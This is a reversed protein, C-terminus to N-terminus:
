LNTQFFHKFFYVLLNAFHVSILSWENLVHAFNDLFSIKRERQYVNTRTRIWSGPFALKESFKAYTSFLHYRTFLMSLSRQIELSPFFNLLTPKWKLWNGTQNKSLLSKFRPLLLHHLQFVLHFIRLFNDFYSFIVDLLILLIIALSM